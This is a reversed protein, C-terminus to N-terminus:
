EKLSKVSKRTTVDLAPSLILDSVRANSRPSAQGIIRHRGTYSVFRDESGLREMRFLHITPEVLKKGRTRFTNTTANRAFIECGRWTLFSLRRHSSALLSPPQIALFSVNIFFSLSPSLSLRYRSIESIGHGMFHVRKANTSSKKEEGRRADIGKTRDHNYNHYAFSFLILCNDKALTERNLSFM